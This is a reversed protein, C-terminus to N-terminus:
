GRYAYRFCIRVGYLYRKWADIIEMDGAENSSGPAYAKTFGAVLAELLLTVDRRGVGADRLPNGVKEILDEFVGRYEKSMSLGSGISALAKVTSRLHSSIAELTPLPLGLGQLDEMTHQRLVDFTNSRYEIFLQIKIVGLLRIWKKNFELGYSKLLGEQMVRQHDEKRRALEEDSGVAQEIDGHQLSILRMESGEYTGLHEGNGVWYNLMGMASWCLDDATMHATPKRSSQVQFRLHLLFVAATYKAALWLPLGLKDRLDRAVSIQPLISSDELNSLVRRINDYQRRCSKLPVRTLESVDDLDKRTKSNVKKGFVERLVSDDLEHYREVMWAQTDYGLQVQLQGRLHEPQCLFHELTDFVRFADATDKAFLAELQTRQSLAEEQPTEEATSGRRRFSLQVGSVAPIKGMRASSSAVEAQFSALRQAVVERASLGRVWSLFVSQDSETDLAVPESVVVDFLSEM